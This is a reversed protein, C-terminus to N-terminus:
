FASKSIDISNLYDQFEQPQEFFVDKSMNLADSVLELVKEINGGAGREIFAYQSYSVLPREDIVIYKNYFDQQSGILNRLTRLNKAARKYDKFVSEKLYGGEILAPEVYRRIAEQTFISRNIKKIGKRKENSIVEDVQNTLDPNMNLEFRRQKQNETAVLGTESEKDYVPNVSISFDGSSLMSGWIDEIIKYVDKDNAAAYQVIADKLQKSHLSIPVRVFISKAM